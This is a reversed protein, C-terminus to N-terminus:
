RSLYRRLLDIVEKAFEPNALREPTRLAAGHVLSEAADLAIEAALALNTSRVEGRRAQLWSAALQHLLRREGDQVGAAAVANHLAPDERHLEILALVCRAIAEELPLDQITATLALLRERFADDHRRRVEAILAEKDPFYQYLSGISVGAVAAARNTTLREAGERSLIQATARIIAEITDRARQQKPQNVRRKGRM